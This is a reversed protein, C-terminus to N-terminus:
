GDIVVTEQNIQDDLNKKTDIYGQLEDFFKKVLKYQGSLEDVQVKKPQTFIKKIRDSVTVEESVEMITNEVISTKAYEKASLLIERIFKFKDSTLMEEAAIAEDAIKDFEEQSIITKRYVRKNDYAIKKKM